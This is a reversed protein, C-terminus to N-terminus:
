GESMQNCNLKMQIKLSSQPEQPWKSSLKDQKNITKFYHYQFKLQFVYINCIFTIM